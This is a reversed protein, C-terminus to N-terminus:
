SVASEQKHSNQIKEIEALKVLVLKLSSDIETFARIKELLSSWDAVELDQLGKIFKFAKMAESEKSNLDDLFGNFQEMYKPNFVLKPSNLQSFLSNLDKILTPYKKLLSEVKQKDITFNPPTPYSVIETSRAAVSLFLLYMSLTQYWHFNRIVHTLYMNTLFKPFFDSAASLERLSDTLEKEDFKVDLRKLTVIIPEINSTYIEPAKGRQGEKRRPGKSILFLKGRRKLRTMVQTVNSRDAFLADTMLGEINQAYNDRGVYLLYVIGTTGDLSNGLSEFISNENPTL